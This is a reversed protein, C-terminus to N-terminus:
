LIGKESKNAKGSAIGSFDQGTTGHVLAYADEILNLSSVVDDLGALPADGADVRKLVDEVFTKYHPVNTSIVKRHVSRGDLDFIEVDNWSNIVIYNRPSRISYHLDFTSTPAPFLYGTEAICTGASGTLSIVSHDEIDYGFSANSMAASTVQLDDGLLLRALDIFHISLNATCGGGSLHPDLMWDCGATRYREPFGAIFRFSLMQYGDGDDLDRLMQLLEGNRFVLPVAAFAANDRALKALEAVQSASTGCPKEVAFPIGAQILWKVMEPMDAHRGLVFAFDPRVNECLRRYDTDGACNHTEALRSVTIADPDSLGVLDVNPIKLAPELYLSLHWHSAGLFVIKM